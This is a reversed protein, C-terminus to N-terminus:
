IQSKENLETSVDETKQEICLNSYSADAAMYYDFPDSAYVFVNEFELLDGHNIQSHMLENNSFLKYYIKGDEGLTQTMEIFQPINTQYAWKVVYNGNNDVANLIIIQDNYLQIAPIRDGVDCCIGGTTLALVGVYTDQPPYSHVTLEIQVRWTPGWKPLITILNNKKIQSAPFCLDSICEPQHPGNRFCVFKDPYDEEYYICDNNCTPDPYVGSQDTQIYTIGNVIKKQCCYEYSSKTTPYYNGFTPFQGELLILLSIINAKSIINRM